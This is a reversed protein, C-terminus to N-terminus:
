SISIIVSIWSVTLLESGNAKNKKKVDKVDINSHLHHILLLWNARHSYESSKTTFLASPHNKKQMHTGENIENFSFLSLWHLVWYLPVLAPFFSDLALAQVLISYM